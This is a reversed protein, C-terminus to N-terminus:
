TTPTPIRGNQSLLIAIPRTREFEPFVIVMIAAIRVSFVAGAVGWLSSWATLSLLIVWPSLNM